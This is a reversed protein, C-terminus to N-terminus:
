LVLSAIWPRRAIVILLDQVAEDSDSRAIVFKAKDLIVFATWSRRLRGSHRDQRVTRGLHLHHYAAQADAFHFVKDIVPKIASVEIARNM